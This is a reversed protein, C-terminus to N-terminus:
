AGALPSGADNTMAITPAGAARAASVVRIVDPSRGSQSIAIVLANGHRPVAAAGYMTELSPAALAVPLGMREGFLYQAYRAANDSSGRAAVMAYGLDRGRLARAIPAVAPAQRALFREIAAPQERIESELRTAPATM